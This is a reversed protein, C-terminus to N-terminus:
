HILDYDDARVIRQTKKPIKLVMKPEPHARILM